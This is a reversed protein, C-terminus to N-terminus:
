IVVVVQKKIGSKYIKWLWITRLVLQRPARGFLSALQNM